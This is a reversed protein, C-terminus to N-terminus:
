KYSQKKFLRKIVFLFIKENKEEHCNMVFLYEGHNEPNKNFVLLTIKLCTFPRGYYIGWREIYMFM